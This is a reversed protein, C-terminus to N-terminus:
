YGSTAAPKDGHGLTALLSALLSSAGFRFTRASVWDSGLLEEAMALYQGAVAADKVGGAPKFGVNPNKAKIVEMM